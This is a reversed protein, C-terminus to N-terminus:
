FRLHTGTDLGWGIFLKIGVRPYIVVKMPHLGVGVLVEIPAGHRDKGVRRGPKQKNRAGEIGPGLGQLLSPDWSARGLDCSAQCSRWIAPVQVECFLCSASDSTGTEKCQASSPAVCFRPSQELSRPNASSESEFQLSIYATRITCNQPSINVTRSLFLLNLVQSPCVPFSWVFWM